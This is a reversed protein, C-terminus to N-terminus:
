SASGNRFRVPPVESAREVHMLREGDRMTRRARPNTAHANGRRKAQRPTQAARRAAETRKAAADRSATAAAAERIDPAVREGNEARYRARRGVRGTGKPALYGPKSKYDFDWREDPDLVGGKGTTMTAPLGCDPCSVTIEYVGGRRRRVDTGPPLKGPKLKPLNHGFGKCAVIDDDLANLYDTFVQEKTHPQVVSLAVTKAM